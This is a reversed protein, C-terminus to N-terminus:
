LANIIDGKVKELKHFSCFFVCVYCSIFQLFKQCYNLCLLQYEKIYQNSKYLESLVIPINVYGLRFLILIYYKQIISSLTTYLSIKLDHIWLISFVISNYLKEYYWLWLPKQPDFSVSRNRITIVISSSSSSSGSSSMSLMSYHVRSSRRSSQDWSGTFESMVMSCSQGWSKQDWSM